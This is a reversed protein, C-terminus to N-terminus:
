AGISDMVAITKRDQEFGYSPEKKELVAAFFARLENKYANEVIFDRYGAAHETKERLEVREARRTAPDFEYLSDPTGNWALYANEAYAEFRRVAVPCVLDVALVGKNGNKHQLEILFNDDFDIELSTMRGSLARAKEIEGFAATLWPLEISLLERVGNSRRDGAFFGRYDEWPHWDPLYQGVHYLYNWPGKGGVKGIIFRNEERYLFPSSLFLLCGREKALRMNEEYGDAVLNLEVFTHWGRALCDSVLAAHFLPSTCIFACDIGEGAEEPSSFCPIDHQKAAESRRDERGDVGCVAFAPYMERLLRIRRKGMSGLGIVVIKM